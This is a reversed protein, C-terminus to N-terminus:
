NVLFKLRQVGALPELTELNVEFPRSITNGALDAVESGIRIIYEGAQWPEDPVFQWSKENLGMLGKGTIIKGTPGLVTVERAFLYPDIVCPFAIILAAKSQMGPSTIKWQNVDLRKRVEDEAIIKKELGQALKNGSADLLEGSIRLTYTKGPELPPGLQERLNVGLKVRGPHFWLTLRTDNDNWLETRRWPDDVSKGEPGVLEISDFITKSQRMPGSFVITFKLLNAPVRDTTPYVKLVKVADQPKSLPLKFQTFDKDKTDIRIARYTKGPSFPQSPIFVLMGDRVLYKGFLPAGIKGSEDNLLGVYFIREGDDNSVAGTKKKLPSSADLPLRVEVGPSIDLPQFLPPVAILLAAMMTIMINM